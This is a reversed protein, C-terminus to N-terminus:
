YHRYIATRLPKFHACFDCPGRNVLYIDMWGDNDYDFFGCGARTSEPLYQQASRGSTHVFNIGSASPPIESFPFAPSAKDAARALSPLSAMAASGALARLFDRRLVRDSRRRM